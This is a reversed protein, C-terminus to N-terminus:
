WMASKKKKAYVSFESLEHCLCRSLKPEWNFIRGDACLLWTTDMLTQVRLQLYMLWRLLWMTVLGDAQLYLGDSCLLWVTAIAPSLSLKAPRRSAREPKHLRPHLGVEHHRRIFPHLTKGSLTFSVLFERVSVGLLKEGLHEPDEWTSLPLWWLNLVIM